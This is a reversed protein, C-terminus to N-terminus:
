YRRTPPQTACGATACQSLQYQYPLLLIHPVSPPPPSPPLVQLFLASVIRTCFIFCGILVLHYTSADGTMFYRRVGGGHWCEAGRDRM